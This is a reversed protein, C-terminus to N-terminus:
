PMAWFPSALLCRIMVPMMANLDLNGHTNAVQVTVSNGMVQACVMMLAENMVPNVKGPMIFSGPQVPPLFVEGIGCRPGSSLWRIDNAVKMLSTAVTSLQGALEVAADRSHQAEFHNEAERFPLALRQSM